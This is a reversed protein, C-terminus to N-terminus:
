KKGDKILKEQEINYRESELIKKKKKKHKCYKEVEKVNVSCDEYSVENDILTKSTISEISNLKSRM